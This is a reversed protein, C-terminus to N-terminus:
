VDIAGRKRDRWSKVRNAAQKQAKDRAAGTWQEVPSGGTVNVDHEHRQIYLGAMKGLEKAADKADHLEVETYSTVTVNGHKDTREERRMKVKKISDLRGADQMRVLDIRPDDPNSLDLFDEATATAHRTMRWVIESPTMAMQSILAEIAARVEPLRKIKHGAQATTAYTNGYGAYEAAATANGGTWLVYYIAFLRHGDPLGKLAQPEEGMLLDDPAPASAAPLNVRQTPAPAPTSQIRPKPPAPETKNPGRRAWSKLTSTPIGLQASAKGYSTASALALAEEIEQTTYTRRAM